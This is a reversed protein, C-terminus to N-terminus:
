FNNKPKYITAEADANFSSFDRQITPETGSLPESWNNELLLENILQWHQEDDILLERRLNAFFELSHPVTVGQNALAEKLVGTYIQLRYQRTIGPIVKTLTYIEEPKLQELSRGELYENWNIPLQQLQRQLAQIDREQAYKEASRRWNKGLWLCSLIVALWNILPILWGPLWGLTPKVGLAFLFNFATFAFLILCYHRIQKTELPHKLRKNLKQAFKELRIGLFYTLTSFLGLIVPVAILKPIPIVQDYLYLGPGLVTALQNTEQWVGGSLLNWNGSYFGFYSYFGIVLGLYSYYIMPRDSKQLGSWYTNEADIDMCPSNCGVCASKEGGNPSVTRCMSQTITMPPAQHASSTFLSTPETYIMQVPAMPCFYHCWTKGGYLFGVTLAAIITLLLFIGLLLRDSNVFLLRLTLGVFLLSYQFRLHHRSLWANAPILKPRQWKLARPLQSIFSLPCIRRWAEHGFVLLIMIVSPLVMGWFIRAGLPYSTLQHCEGQFQFCSDSTAPGLWQGPETLSASIPDFFLSVILILWGITVSWRILHMSGESIKAFM